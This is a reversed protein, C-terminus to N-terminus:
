QANTGCVQWGHRVCGVNCNTDSRVVVAVDKLSHYVHRALSAPAVATIWPGVRQNLPRVSTTSTIPPHPARLGDGLLPTRSLALPLELLALEFECERAATRRVHQLAGIGVQM